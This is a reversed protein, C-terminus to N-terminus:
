LWLNSNNKELITLLRNIETYNELAEDLFIEKYENEKENSM